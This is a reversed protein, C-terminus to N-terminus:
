RRRMTHRYRTAAELSGRKERLLRISEHVKMTSAQQVSLADVLNRLADRKEAMQKTTENVEASAKRLAASVEPTLYDRWHEEGGSSSSSSITQALATHNAGHKKPSTLEAGAAQLITRGLLSGVHTSANKSIEELQSNLEFKHESITKDLRSLEAMLDQVLRELAATTDELEDFQEGKDRLKLCTIDLTCARRYISFPAPKIPVILQNLM